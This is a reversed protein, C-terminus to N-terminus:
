FSIIQGFCIIDQTYNLPENQTVSIDEETYNTMLKRKKANKQLGANISLENIETM